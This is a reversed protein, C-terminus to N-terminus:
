SRMEKHNKCLMMLKPPFPVKEHYCHMEPYCYSPSLIVTPPHISWYKNACSEDDWVPNIGRSLDKDVMQMISRAMRLFHHTKGGNFGGAFYHKGRSVCAQSKPNREYPFDKVMKNYYGPHLTAVMDGLIEDGVIDVALADVDLYFLYDM